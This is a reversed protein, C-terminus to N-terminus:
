ASSAGPSPLQGAPLDPDAAHGPVFSERPGRDNTVSAADPPLTDDHGPGLLDVHVRHAHDGVAGRPAPTEGHGACAPALPGFDRRIWPGVSISSRGNTFAIATRVASSIPSAQPEGEFRRGATSPPPRRRSAVPLLASRLSFFSRPPRPERASGVLVDEGARRHLALRALRQDAESDLRVDSAARPGSVRLWPSRNARPSRGHRPPRPTRVRSSCPRREPRSPRALFELEHRFAFQRMSPRNPAPCGRRWPARAAHPRRATISAPARPLPGRVAAFATAGPPASRRHARPSPLDRRRPSFGVGDRGANTLEVLRLPFRDPGLGEHACATVQARRAGLDIPCRVGLVPTM